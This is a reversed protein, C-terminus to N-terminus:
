EDHDLVEANGHGALGHEDGGRDVRARAPEVNVRTPVPVKLGSVAPSMPPRPSAAQTRVQPRGSSRLTAKSMTVTSRGIAVAAWSGWAATTSAATPNPNKV